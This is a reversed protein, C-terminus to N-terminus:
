CLNKFITQNWFRQLQHFQYTCSSDTWQRLDHKGLSFSTAGMIPRAKAYKLGLIIGTHVHCAAHLSVTSEGCTQQENMAREVMAREHRAIQGSRTCGDNVTLTDKSRVTSPWKLSRQSCVRSEGHARQQKNMSLAAITLVPRLWAEGMTWNHDAWQGNLIRRGNIRLACGARRSYARIENLKESDNLNWDKSLGTALGIESM